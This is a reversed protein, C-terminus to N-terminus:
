EEEAVEPYLPQVGARVAANEVLAQLDTEEWSKALVRVLLPSTKEMVKEHTRFVDAQCGCQLDLRQAPFPTASAVGDKEKAQIIMLSTM